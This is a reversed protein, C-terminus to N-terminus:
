NLTPILGACGIRSTHRFWTGVSHKRLSEPLTSSSRSKRAEPSQKRRCSGVMGDARSGEM